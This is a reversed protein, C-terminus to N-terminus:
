YIAKCERIRFFPFYGYEDAYASPITLCYEVLDHNWRDLHNENYHFYFEEPEYGDERLLGKSNVIVGISRKFSGRLCALAFWMMRRGDDRSRLSRCSEGAQALEQGNVIVLTQSM